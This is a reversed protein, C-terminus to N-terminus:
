TAPSDSISLGETRAREKLIEEVWQEASTGQANAKESAYRLVSEPLHLAQLGGEGGSGLLKVAPDGLIVLNRADNHATWLFALLEAPPIKGKRAYELPAALQAAIATFRRYLPRMANGLRRGKFLIRLSDELSRVADTHEGQPTWSFSLTWGRDIHGIVALAGRRLLTQPLRGIFPQSAIAGPKADDVTGGKKEHPFNDEVPTGAGYCAFLFTIQGHLCANKDVDGAHFFQSKEPNKERPGPWEQCLLAGQYKEQDDHGPSVKLGHCAVLLLGPTDEGGLLRRLAEKKAKEERWVDLGWGAHHSGLREVLPAVLHTSMLATTEDGPNKVSFFTARHPLNVGNKEADVVSDAYRAYDELAEFYVRGVAHNISLQYQFDFPITTPEGVILLYYPMMKPDLVGPSIGHRYWLFGRASEPPNYTLEKYLEGAQGKRYDLLRRLHQKVAPHEGRAFIVGWGTQSLDNPDVHDPLERRRLRKEARTALEYERCWKLEDLYAQDEQAGALVEALQEFTVDPLDGPEAGVRDPQDDAIGVAISSRLPTVEEDRYVQEEQAEAAALADDLKRSVAAPVDGDGGGPQDSYAQDIPEDDGYDDDEISWYTRSRIKRSEPEDPM